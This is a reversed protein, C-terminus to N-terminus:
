EVKELSDLVMQMDVKAVASQRDMYGYSIVLDDGDQILSTIVQVAECDDPDVASPLCFEGSLKTLIYGTEESSSSPTLTYWFHTYHHGFTGAMTSLNVSDGYGRRIHGLGLFGGIESMWLLMSSGSPTNYKDPFMGSDSYNLCYPDANCFEAKRAMLEARDKPPKMGFVSQDKLADPERYGYCANGFLPRGAGAPQAPSKLDLTGLGPPHLWDQLLLTADPKEAFAMNKSPGNTNWSSNFGREPETCAVLTRIEDKNMWVELQPMSSTSINLIGFSQKEFLNRQNSGALEPVAEVNYPIFSFAVTDDSMLFMRPDMFLVEALEQNILETRGLIHANDDIKIDELGPVKIRTVDISELNQDLVSLLGMTPWSGTAIWRGNPYAAKMKAPMPALAANTGHYRLVKKYKTMIVKPCKGLIFGSYNPEKRYAFRQQPFEELVFPVSLYCKGDERVSVQYFGDPRPKTKSSLGYLHIEPKFVTAMMITHLAQAYDYKLGVSRWLDDIDDSIKEASSSTQSPQRTFSTQLLSFASDDAECINTHSDGECQVSQRLPTYVDPAAVSSATITISIALVCPVNSKSSSRM